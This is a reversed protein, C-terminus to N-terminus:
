RRQEIYLFYTNFVLPEASLATCEVYQVHRM